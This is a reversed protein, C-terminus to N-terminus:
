LRKVAVRDIYIRDGSRITLKVFHVRIPHNSNCFFYTLLYSSVASSFVRKSIVGLPVIGEDIGSM